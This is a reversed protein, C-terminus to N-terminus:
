EPRPRQPFEKTEAFPGDSMTLQGARQRLTTASRVSQLGASIVHHGGRVLDEVWSGCEGVLAELEPASLAALKAEEHYVLCIYQM